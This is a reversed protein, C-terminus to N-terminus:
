NSTAQGWHESVRFSCNQAYLSFKTKHQFIFMKYCWVDLLCKVKKYFAIENLSFSETLASKWLSADYESCWVVFVSKNNPLTSLKCMCSFMMIPESQKSRVHFMMILKVNDHIVYDFVYFTHIQKFLMIEFIIFCIVYIHVWIYNHVYQELTTNNVQIIFISMYRTAEQVTIQM